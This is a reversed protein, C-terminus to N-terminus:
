MKLTSSLAHQLSEVGITISTKPLEKGRYECMVDTSVDSLHSGCREAILEAIRVSATNSKDYTASIQTIPILTGDKREEKLLGQTNLEVAYELMAIVAEKGYGQRWYEYHLIIALAACSKSGHGLVIHGIFTGDKLFIAFASLPDTKERSWRELWMDFCRDVVEPEWITGDGYNEMDTTNGFLSRYNGRDSENISRLLLRETTIKVQGDKFVITTM